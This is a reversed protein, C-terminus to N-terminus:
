PAFLGVSRGKLAAQPAPLLPVGLSFSLSFANCLSSAIVEHSLIFLAFMRSEPSYDKDERAKVALM